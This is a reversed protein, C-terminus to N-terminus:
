SKAAQHVAQFLHMSAPFYPCSSVGPSLKCRFSDGTCGYRHDSGCGWHGCHGCLSGIQSICHCWHCVMVSSGTTRRRTRAECPWPRPTSTSSTVPLCSSAARWVSCNSATINQLYRAEALNFTTLNKEWANWQKKNGDFRLWWGSVLVYGLTISM